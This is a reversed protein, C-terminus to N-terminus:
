GNNTPNFATMETGSAFFRQNTPRPDLVCLSDPLNKNYNVSFRMWASGDPYAKTGNVYELGSQMYTIVCNTCPVGVTDLFLESEGPPIVFPGYNLQVRKSGYQPFFEATLPIIQTNNPPAVLLDSIIKKLTYEQREGLGSSPLKGRSRYIKLKSFFPNIKIVQHLPRLSRQVLVAM